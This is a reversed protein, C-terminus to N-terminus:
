LFSQNLVHHYFHNISWNNNIDLFDNIPLAIPNAGIIHRNTPYKIIGNTTIPSPLILPANEPICVLM